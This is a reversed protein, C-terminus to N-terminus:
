KIRLMVYFPATGDAAQWIGYDSVGVINPHHVKSLFDIENKFRKRRDSLALEPRLTKLAFKAGGSRVVGYVRGSGGEGLVDTVQYTGFATEFTTPMAAKGIVGRAKAPEARTRNLGAEDLDEAPLDEICRRIFHDPIGCEEGVSLIAGPIDAGEELLAGGKYDERGRFVSAEFIGRVIVRGDRHQRVELFYLDLEGDNYQQAHRSYDVDGYSDGTMRAIVPWQDKRIKVPRRRSLVIEIFRDENKRMSVAVM